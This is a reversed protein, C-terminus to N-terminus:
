YTVYLTRQRALLASLYVCVLLIDDFVLLDCYGTVLLNLNAVAFIFDANSRDTPSSNIKPVFRAM